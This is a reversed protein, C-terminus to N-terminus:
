KAVCFWINCIVYFYFPFLHLPVFPVQLLSSLLTSPIRLLAPVCVIYVQIFVTFFILKSVVRNILLVHLRSLHSSSVTISKDVNHSTSVHRWAQFPSLFLAANLQPFWVPLPEQFPLFHFGTKRQTGFSRCQMIKWGVVPWQSVCWFAGRSGHTDCFAVEPHPVRLHGGTQEGWQGGM